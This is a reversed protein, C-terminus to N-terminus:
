ASVCGGSLQHPYAKLRMEAAPIQVKELIQLAVKMAEARSLKQHRMVAESLQDGLTFAPNLSTMPEPFDNGTRQRSDAYERPSLKRLDHRRFQMEGSVIQASAPLLGMLALSTISKGCGSEGVLALTEGANVTLSIGDLVSVPSGAFTVNLNQLRLVPTPDKFPITTM